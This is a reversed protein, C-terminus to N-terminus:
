GRGYAQAAHMTLLRAARACTIMEGLKLQIAQHDAIPKGVTHHEQLYHAALRLFSIAPGFGRAAANIRDPELGGWIPWLRKAQM